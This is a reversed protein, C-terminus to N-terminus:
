PNRCEYIPVTGPINVWSCGHEVCSSETIYFPCSTVGGCAQVAIDSLVPTRISTDGDNQQVVIQYQLTAQDFPVSGGLLSTPNLTREYLDGGMPNMAVSQFENSSSGTQFRYFLVVVNIGNPAIARATITVELTGCDARGLYVLNTSIREVSASGILQPTPTYTPTFTSTLTPILTPTLTATLTPIATFTSVPTDTVRLPPTETTSIDQVLFVTTQTTESWLGSNDKVRLEILNEGPILTPCATHLTALNQKSDPAPIDSAIAGNIFFEFLAIGKPSAGHAIIQCPNPPYFVTDPLPMDFWAQPQSSTQAGPLSCAALLLCITITIIKRSM